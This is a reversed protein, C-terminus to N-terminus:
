IFKTIGGLISGVIFIWGVATHVIQPLWELIFANLFTGNLFLGGIGIGAVILAFWMLWGMFGNVQNKTKRKM